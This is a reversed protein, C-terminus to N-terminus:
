RSSVEGLPPLEMSIADELRCLGVDGFPEVRDTLCRELEAAAERAALAEDASIIGGGCADEFEDWDETGVAGARTRFPDLELDIYTWTRGNRTAPTCVDIAVELAGRPLWQAIWWGETPILQVISRGVGSPDEAVECWRSTTGDWGQYRSHAPTYLWLGHDDEDLVYGSWLGTGIPRKCKQILVTEPHTPM